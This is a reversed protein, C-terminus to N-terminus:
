CHQVHWCCQSCCPPRVKFGGGGGNRRSHQLASRRRGQQAWARRKWVEFPMGANNTGGDDPLMHAWDRPEAAGRLWAWRLRACSWRRTAAGARAPPTGHRRLREQSPFQPRTGAPSLHLLLGTRRCRGNLGLPTPSIAPGWAAVSQRAGAIRFQRWLEASVLRQAFQQPKASALRPRPRHFALASQPLYRNIIGAAGTRRPPVLRADVAHCKWATRESPPRRPTILSAAAQRLATLRRTRVDLPRRTYVHFSTCRQHM